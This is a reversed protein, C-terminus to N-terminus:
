GATEGRGASYLAWSVFVVGTFEVGAISGCVVGGGGDFRLLGWGDVSWLGDERRGPIQDRGVAALLLRVRMALLRRASPVFVVKRM